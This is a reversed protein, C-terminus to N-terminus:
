VYEAVMVPFLLGFAILTLPAQVIDVPVNEPPVPPRVM